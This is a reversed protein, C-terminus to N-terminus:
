GFYSILRRAAADAGDASVRGALARAQASVPAQLAANLSDALRAADLGAAPTTSGIGLREVRRAWYFQDGFMPVAIQPAGALAAATTTGAGAHHVVAGVRPFLAAHS